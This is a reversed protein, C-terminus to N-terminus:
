SLIIIKEPTQGYIRLITLNSYKHQETQQAVRLGEALNQLFRLSFFLLATLAEQLLIPYVAVHEPPDDKCQPMSAIGSETMGAFAPIWIYPVIRKIASGWPKKVTKGNARRQSGAKAPIVFPPPADSPKLRLLPFRYVEKM